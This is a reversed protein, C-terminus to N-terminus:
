HFPLCHKKLLGAKVKLAERVIQVGFLVDDNGQLKPPLQPVAVGETTKRREESGLATTTAYLLAAGGGPVVGEELACRTACLADNLRDKTEAQEVESAGGVKVVAVGGQLRALREKLKDTEYDSVQRHDTQTKM